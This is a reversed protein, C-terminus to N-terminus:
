ATLVVKVSGAHSTTDLPVGVGLAVPEPTNGVVVGGPASTGTASLGSAPWTTALPKNWRKSNTVAYAAATLLPPVM